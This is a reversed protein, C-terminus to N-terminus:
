NALLKFVGLGLFILQLVLISMLAARLYKKGYSLQQYPFLGVVTGLLFGLIPIGFLFTTFHAKIIANGDAISGDLNYIPANGSRSLVALILNLATAVVIYILLQNRKQKLFSQKPPDDEDDLIM